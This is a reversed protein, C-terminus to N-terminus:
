NSFAPRASGCMGAVPIILGANSFSPRLDLPEPRPQREHGFVADIEAESPGDDPKWPQASLASGCFFLLFLANRVGMVLATIGM